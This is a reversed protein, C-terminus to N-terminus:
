AKLEMMQQQLIALQQLYPQRREYHRTKLKALARIKLNTDRSTNTLKQREQEYDFDIDALTALLSQLLPQVTPPYMRPLPPKSYREENQFKTDNM